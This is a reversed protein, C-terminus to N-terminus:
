KVAAMGDLNRRVVDLPMFHRAVDMHLGRWAFRPRDEITVAPVGWGAQTNDILQYFTELGRLAGLPNPAAIVAQRTDVTLRYSEDEDLSQVPNSAGAVRLLLAPMGNPHLPMGTLRAVRATLRDIAGTLRPETYGARDIAIAFDQGIALRGEAAHISTPMPMVRWQAPLTIAAFLLIFGARLM